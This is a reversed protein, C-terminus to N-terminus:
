KCAPTLNGALQRGYLAHCRLSDVDFVALTRLEESSGGVSEKGAKYSLSIRGQAASQTGGGVRGHSGRLGPEEFGRPRIGPRAVQVKTSSSYVFFPDDLGQQGKVPYSTM